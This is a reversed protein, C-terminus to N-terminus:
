TAEGDSELWQYFEVQEYFDIDENASLLELDELSALPDVQQPGPWLVVAIVVVAASAAGAYSWHWASRPSRPSQTLAQRRIQRLRQATIEDVDAASQDLVKRAGDMLAKDEDTLESM